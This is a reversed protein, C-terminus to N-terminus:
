ILRVSMARYLLSSGLSTILFQILLFSVISNKPKHSLKFLVFKLETSNSRILDSAPYLENVKDGLFHILKVFAIPMIEFLPRYPPAKAYLSMAKSNAEHIEASNLIYTM